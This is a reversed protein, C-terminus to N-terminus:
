HSARALPYDTSLYLQMIADGEFREDGIEVSSYRLQPRPLEEVAYRVAEAASPFRLYRPGRGRHATSGAYLEASQDYDFRATM